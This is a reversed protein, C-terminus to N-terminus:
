VVASIEEDPAFDADVGGSSLRRPGTIPAATSRISLNTASSFDNFRKIRRPGSDSVELPLRRDVAVACEKLLM